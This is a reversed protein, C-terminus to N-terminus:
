REAQNHKLRYIRRSNQNLERRLHRREMPTLKGDSKAEREDWRVEREEQRLVRAERPTLEGSKVGQHIRRAQHRERRNILPSRPHASAATVTFLAVAVFMLKLM